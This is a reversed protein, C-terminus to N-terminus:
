GIGKRLVVESQLEENQLQILNKYPANLRVLLFIQSVSLESM